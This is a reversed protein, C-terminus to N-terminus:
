NPLNGYEKEWIDDWTDLMIAKSKCEIEWCVNPWFIGCNYYNMGSDLLVYLGISFVFTVFCCFITDLLKSV